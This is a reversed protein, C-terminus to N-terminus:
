FLNELVIVNLNDQPIFSLCGWLHLSRRLLAGLPPNQGSLTNLLNNLARYISDTCKNEVDTYFVSRDPSMAKLLYDMLTDKELKLEELKGIDNWEETEAIMAILLNLRQRVNRITKQDFNVAPLLSQFSPETNNDNLGIQDYSTYRAPDYNCVAYLAPASINQYPHLLLEVLYRAAKSRRVRVVSDQWKFSVYGDEVMVILQQEDANQSYDYLMTM